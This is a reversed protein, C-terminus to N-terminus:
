VMRSRNWCHRTIARRAGAAQFFHSYDFVPKTLCGNRDNPAL